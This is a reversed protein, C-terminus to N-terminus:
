LLLSSEQRRIDEQGWRVSQKLVVAIFLVVESHWSDGGPLAPPM